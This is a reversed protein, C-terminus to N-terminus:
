TNVGLHPSRRTVEIAARWIVYATTLSLAAALPVDGEALVVAVGVAPLALASALSLIVVIYVTTREQPMVERRWQQSRIAIVAPTGIVALLVGTAVPGLLVWWVLTSIPAGLILAAVLPCAAVAASATMAWEPLTPEGNPAAERAREVLVAALFLALLVAFAVWAATSPRGDM